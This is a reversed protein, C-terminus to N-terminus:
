PLVQGVRRRLYGEVANRLAPSAKGNWRLGEEGLPMTVSTPDFERLIEHRSVYERSDFSGHWLHQAVGELWGVQGGVKSFMAEAWALYAVRCADNMRAKTAALNQQGWFAGAMVTDGGGVICRDYLGCDLVGRRFAWAFGHATPEGVVRLGGRYALGAMVSDLDRNERLLEVYRFPQIVPYMDLAQDLLGLTDKPLLVDGDIVLVKDCEAPLSSVGVNIAREKQWMCDGPVRLTLTRWGGAIGVISGIVVEVALVPVNQATLWRICEEFNRRRHPCEFPNFYCTVAWLM